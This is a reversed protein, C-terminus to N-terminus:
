KLYILVHEKDQQVDIELGRLSCLCRMIGPGLKFLRGNWGFPLLILTLLITFPLLILITAIVFPWLIFLPIWLGFRHRQNRVRLRMISPPWIM